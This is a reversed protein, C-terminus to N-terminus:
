SVARVQQPQEHLEVLAIDLALSDLDLSDPWKRQAAVDFGPHFTPDSLQRTKFASHMRTLLIRKFQDARLHLLSPTLPTDLSLSSPTTAPTNVPVAIALEIKDTKLEWKHNFFHPAVSLVERFSMISFEKHLQNEM